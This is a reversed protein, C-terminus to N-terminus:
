ELPLYTRKPLRAGIEPVQTHCSVDDDSMHTQQLLESDITFMDLTTASKSEHYSAKFGIRLVNMRQVSSNTFFPRLIHFLGYLCFLM